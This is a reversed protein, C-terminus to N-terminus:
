ADILLKQILDTYYQDGSYSAEIDAVWTPAASSIAMLHTDKRSLAVVVKNEKGKKQEISYNFELLKLLLKHQISESFRQTMMFKLSEQDTRIVLKSGLFYHRWKKLAQLIALAEKYYTSQAAVKPGLAQSYFAIPRGGQMVVAGIGMASAYTELIFPLEFNPLALVPASCLKQKLSQFATTHESTWVFSGKKLLNHLPKCILGYDKIFRRYYGTLDLFSRLQKVNKPVLWSQIDRIKSPNTAVGLSSIILRLYEVQPVVFECKSQKATLQNDRLVQLVAALHKVHEELSKSYILIDDFFFLIYKRMYPAFIKNKLAQFTTPANSLGFPMVLYEFHGFYASFATKHIDSEKMRIQHYGSKLDLKSFL